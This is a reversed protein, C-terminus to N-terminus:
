FIHVSYYNFEVYYTKGKTLPVVGSLANNYGMSTSTIGLTSCYITDNSKSNFYIRFYTTNEHQTCRYFLWGNRTPTFTQGSSLGTDGLVANFQLNNFAGNSTLASTDGSTPIDTTAVSDGKDGKDGKAGQPGQPGTAGTDGKDGKPIGFTFLPSEATGTKVVTAESGASLTTASVSINPTAGTDGKAGTTGTDGKEGKLNAFKFKKYPKASTAGDGAVLTVTPTGVNGAESTDINTVLKEVYDQSYLSSNVMANLNQRSVRSGKEYEEGANITASDVKNRSWEAM